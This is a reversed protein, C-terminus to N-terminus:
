KRKTGLIDRQRETATNHEVSIYLVQAREFLRVHYAGRSMATAPQCRLQM